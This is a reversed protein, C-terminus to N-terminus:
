GAHRGLKKMLIAMCVGTLLNFTERIFPTGWLPTQNDIPDNIEASITDRAPNSQHRM